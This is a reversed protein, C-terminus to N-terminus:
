SQRIKAKLFDASDKLSSIQTGRKFKKEIISQAFSLIDQESVDQTTTYYGEKETYKFLKKSNAM